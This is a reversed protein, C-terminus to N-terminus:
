RFLETLFNRLSRGSLFLNISDSGSFDVGSLTGGTVAVQATQHTSDLIGDADHDDVLLDAYIQDLITDQRRFKLQLDLRGDSNVDTLTSQWVGAGAFRVSSVNVQTADFDVSGFVVVTLTGNSDVNLSEPQIDITVTQVELVSLVAQSFESTNGVADTATSTIYEGASSAAAIVVDFPANGFADTTVTASGLWREGEGYGSPDVTSNAYFDLTFTSNPTSHLDGQVHTTAASSAATLEPFNQLANPGADVDLPDNPTVGFQPFYHGINDTTTQALDIGLGGNAYISNGRISNRQSANTPPPGNDIEPGDFTQLDMVAVGNRGNFAIINAAAPNNDSGMGVTRDSSQRLLRIGDTGNGLPQTGNKDTGIYNAQIVTGPGAFLADIGQLMNGSIVNRAGASTGGVVVDVGGDLFVGVRNGLTATGTADTGVYNGTIQNRIGSIAVGRVSNGSVVNGEFRNDRGGVGAGVINPLASSGTKDVGIYNGAIVDSNGNINVGTSWGGSIVNREADDSVGDGNTGIRTRSTDDWTWVGFAFDSNNIPGLAVMGTADTGILNGAVVNDKVDAAHDWGGSILVGFGIVNGETEDAVGDGDTGIINDHAGNYINVSGWTRFSGTADVGIYNGQVKNHHAGNITEVRGGMVNRAGAAGGGILNDSAGFSLTLAGALSNGQVTNGSGFAIFVGPILNGAGPAGIRNRSSYVEIGDGALGVLDTGNKDRGLYNGVVANGLVSNNSRISIGTNNGSVVNRSDPTSGGVTTNDSAGSILIGYTVVNSPDLRLPSLSTGNPDVGIYNGEIRVNLSNHVIIGFGFGNIALGRVVGAGVGDFNVGRGNAPNSLKAGSLQILRAGNDDFGPQTAGDITLQEWIVPLPTLPEITHVGDGPINFDILDAGPNANADLIAQRLSGAGSDDVNVVHFTSLLARLELQEVFPWRTLTRQSKRSARM